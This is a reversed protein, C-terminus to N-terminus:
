DYAAIFIAQCLQLHLSPFNIHFVYDDSHSAVVFAGLCSSDCIFDGSINKTGEHSQPLVFLDDALMKKLVYACLDDFFSCM